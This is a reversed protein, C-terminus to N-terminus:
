RDLLYASAGNRLAIRRSGASPLGLDNLRLWRPVPEPCPSVRCRFALNFRDRYHRATWAEDDGANRETMNVLVWERAVRPNWNPHFEFIGEFCGFGKVEVYLDVTPFASVRM